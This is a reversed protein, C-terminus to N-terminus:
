AAQKELENRFIYNANEISPKVSELLNDLIGLFASSPNDTPNTNAEANIFGELVNAFFEIEKKEILGSIIRNSLTWAASKIVKQQPLELFGPPDYRNDDDLSYSGKIDLNELDKKLTKSISFNNPGDFYRKGQRKENILNIKLNGMFCLLLYDKQEASLSSVNTMDANTLIFECVERFAETKRERESPPKQEPPIQPSLSQSQDSKDRRRLFQKLKSTFRAEMPFGPAKKREWALESMFLTYHM